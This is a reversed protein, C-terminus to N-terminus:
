IPPLDTTRNLPDTETLLDNTSNYTYTWVQGAGDTYATINGAADYTWEQSSGGGGCSQCPGTVKTVV